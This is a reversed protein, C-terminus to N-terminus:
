QAFRRLLLQDAPVDLRERQHPTAPEAGRVRGAAADPHVPVWLLAGAEVLGM